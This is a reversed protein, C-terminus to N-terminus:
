AFINVLSREMDLAQQLLTVQVAEAASADSVGVAPVSGGAAERVAGDFVGQAAALGSMGASVGSIDVTLADVRRIHDRSM